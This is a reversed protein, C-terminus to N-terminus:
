KKSLNLPSAAPPEEAAAPTPTQPLPSATVAPPGTPDAALNPHPSTSTAAERLVAAAAAPAVAPFEPVELGEFVFQARKTEQGPGLVRRYEGFSDSERMRVNDQDYETWIVDSLYAIIEPNLIPVAVEIRRFFNRPMWDASSIWAQRAGGNEFIFFRSHELYKDVLSRVRINESLGPVGPRLCCMGRVLLDIKVGAQSARYLAEIVSEEVLGNMKARIGTARGLHANRTENDIWEIVREHLNDPAVVWTRFGSSFAMAGTLPSYDDQAEMAEFSDFLHKADALYAPHSTMLGIDTYLRATNPHYNGTSLHVFGRHKSASRKEVYTIKAHIKIDPTGYIVQVGAKELARAWRINNAEDFRAKIEVLATVKKKNQAAHVLAEVIPSDGSTRYLTQCIRSVSPDSAAHKVLEQVPEFSSYPHHFLVDHKELVKFFKQRPLDKPLLKPRRPEPFSYRLKKFGKLRYGAMFAKLDLPLSLQYIKDEDFGLQNQLWRVNETLSISDVEVRVIQGFERTKIQAELEALPDDADEDVEIEANRSVKFSFMDQVEFNKFVLDRYLYILRDVMFVHRSKVILLRPLTSPVEIISHSNPHKALLYLRGGSLSPLVGGEPIRLPVIHPLVREEFVERGLDSAQTEIHLGAEAFSRALEEFVKAQQLKQDYVWERIRAVLRAVPIGDRMGSGSAKAFISPLRVMFFEELNTSVIVLYKLREFLPNTPDTAEELVHENFALWSLERSFLRSHTNELLYKM